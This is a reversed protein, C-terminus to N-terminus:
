KTYIFKATWGEVIDNHELRVFDNVKDYRFRWKDSFNVTESDMNMFVSSDSASTTKFIGDTGIQAVHSGSADSFVMPINPTWAGDPTYSSEYVLQPRKFTAEVSGIVFGAGDIAARDSGSVDYALQLDKDSIQVTQSEITMETTSGTVSLNGYVTMNGPTLSVLATAGTGVYSDISSGSADLTIKTTSGNTVDNVNLLDNGSLDIDGNLTLNSVSSGGLFEVSSNFYAPGSITFTETSSASTFSGYLTTGGSVDLSSQLTTAGSVTLTSGVGATGSVDMNGDVGLSGSVDVTSLFNAAGSVDLTSQLTTGGSVDLTSLMVVAGDLTAAGDFHASGSVDLSSALSTAGTVDLTGGVLVNGSVDASGDVSANGSVDLNSRLTTAGSVDLTSGLTTSGSVDVTSQFSAPGTATVNGLTSQGSVQLSSLTGVSTLSSSTVTTGLGTQSLVPVTNILYSYALDINVDGAAVHLKAQPNTTNIGVRQNTVTLVSNNGAVFNFQQNVPDHQILNTANLNGFRLVNGSFNLPGTTRLELTDGANVPDVINTTLSTAHLAATTTVGTVRLDNNLTSAGNVTLSASTGTFTVDGAATLTSTIGVTSAFSAAGTVTATGKLASAGSVDLAGRLDAAGNARLTSGLVAAGSVDLTGRLDVGGDARLTSSLTTAGSVDLTGKLASAGSVDLSGRVSTHTSRVYALASSVELSATAEAVTLNGTAPKTFLEWTSASNAYGVREVATHTASTGDHHYFWNDVAGNTATQHKHRIYTDRQSVDGFNDMSRILAANPAM